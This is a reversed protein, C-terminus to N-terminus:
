AEVPVVFVPYGVEACQGESGASAVMWDAEVRLFEFPELSIFKLSNM